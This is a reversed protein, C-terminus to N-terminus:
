KKRRKEPLTSIENITCEINNLTTRVTKMVHNETETYYITDLTEGSKTFLYGNDNMNEIIEDETWEQEEEENVTGTLFERHENILKEKIEPSLDQIEYALISTNINITKM